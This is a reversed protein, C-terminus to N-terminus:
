SSSRAEEARQRWLGTMEEAFRDVLPLESATSFLMELDLEWVFIKMDLSVPLDADVDEAESVYAERLVSVNATKDAAFIARAAPGAAAVRDRHEEKREQYDDITEDETMAAVLHGVEAGFRRRIEVLEVDAHEVVDHLLGAALVEEGLGEEALLETVAVPHEIFPVEGAGTERTQGSHAERAAALAERLLESREAAEEIRPASAM